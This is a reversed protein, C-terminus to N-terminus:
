KIPESPRLESTPKPLTVIATTGHGQRSRLTLTGHHRDTIMKAISLGLGFGEGSSKARSADARYFRDFVHPLADASIGQGNDAVSIEITGQVQKSTIHVSGKDDSYKIANDLLIVFLQVLSDTDGLVKQDKVENQVVIHKTKASRQVQSVAAEAIAAVSQQSFDVATEEADLKTLKLLNNILVSMTTADELNSELAERLRAKDAQKDMLAIESGMKLSTLPTRLEHSVDATFRKQQEHAIEIPRLTRRALFYSAFGALLLVLINFYVLRLLIHHSGVALDRGPRLFPSGNFVPFDEYIRQTQHHLGVTLESTAFHYVVVSFILSITMVIAQYWLTLKFTASRFM